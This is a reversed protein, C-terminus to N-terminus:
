ITMNQLATNTLRTSFLSIENIKDNLFDLGSLSSGIYINSLTTLTGTFSDNAIPTVNVGNVYMASDSDKYGVAVRITGTTTAASQFDM